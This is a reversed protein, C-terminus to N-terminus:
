RVQWAAGADAAVSPAVAGPPFTPGNLACFQPHTTLVGIGYPASPRAFNCRFIPLAGAMLGTDTAVAPPVPSPPATQGGPGGNWCFQPHTTLEGIGYSASLNPSFQNCVFAQLGAPPPLSTIPTAVYAPVAAPAPVPGNFSCFEPHTTLMGVGYAGNLNPTAQACRFVHIAAPPAVPPPAVIPSPCVPPGGAPVINSETFVIAPLAGAAVAAPPTVLTLNNTEATTGLATTCPVSVAAGAAKDTAVRVVLTSGPNFAAGNGSNDGFINFEAQTWGLALNLINDPGNVAFLTPPAGISMFVADTGGVVASGTLVFNPLGAITPQPVPVAPSNVFCDNPAPPLGPTPSPHIWGPPCVPGFDFQWYQMFACAAGGCEDTSFVFQQWRCTPIAAPCTAAGFFNANLQLSFTDPSGLAGNPPPFTQTENIVGVVNDFSGEALSINVGPTAANVVFDTSNGVIAPRPGRAPHPLPTATTCPVERWRRSPYSSTFCGFKPLPTRTMTRRWDDQRPSPPVKIEPVPRVYGPPRADTQALATGCSVFSVFAFMLGALAVCLASLRRSCSRRKM